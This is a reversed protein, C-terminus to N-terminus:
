NEQLNSSQNVIVLTNNVKFMASVKIFSSLTADRIDSDFPKSLGGNLQLMLFMNEKNKSELRIKTRVPIVITM